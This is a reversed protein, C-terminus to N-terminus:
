KARPKFWPLVVGDGANHFTVEVEMDCTVEEPPCGVINTLMRIGEELDVLALCYPPSLFKAIRPPPYDYVVSYTYVKGKGSAKMWGLSSSLCNTCYVRPPYMKHKCDQCQQILLEGRATGEWFPRSWHSFRVGLKEAFAQKEVTTM